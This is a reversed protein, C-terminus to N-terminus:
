CVLSRANNSSHRLNLGQGQFKQMGHGFGFWVLGFRLSCSPRQRGLVTLTILPSLLSVIKKKKLAASTAYPPEWALPGILAVAAPRCWLWLLAPDSGRRHGVGCSVALDKVWQALGPVSGAVKHKRTPNTLWQVM